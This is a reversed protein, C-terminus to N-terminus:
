RRNKNKLFTVNYTNVFDCFFNVILESILIEFHCINSSSLVITHLDHLTLLLRSNKIKLCRLRVLSAAIRVSTCPNEWCSVESRSRDFKMAWEVPWALSSRVHILIFKGEYWCVFEATAVMKKVPPVIAGRGGLFWIQGELWMIRGKSFYSLIKGPQCEYLGVVLM